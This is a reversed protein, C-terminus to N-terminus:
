LNQNIYGEQDYCRRYKHMLDLLHKIVPDSTDLDINNSFQYDYREKSGHKLREEIDDPILFTTRERIAKKFPSQFIKIGEPDLDGFHFHIYPNPISALWDVLNNSVPYRSVFLIRPEKIDFSKEHYKYFFDRQKRVLRFNEMNEIGIVIVDEPIIFNQWDTIYLFTGDEPDIILEKKNLITKLPYITNVPFGPCTKVNKTKSNVSHEAFDARISTPDDLLVQLKYLDSFGDFNNDLFEKLADPNIASIKKFSGKVHYLIMKERHLCERMENNFSSYPVHGGEILSILDRVLSKSPKM